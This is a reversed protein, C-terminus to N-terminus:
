SLRYKRRVQNVLRERSSRLREHPAFLASAEDLLNVVVALKNIQERDLEDHSCLMEIERIAVEKAAIDEPLGSRTCLGYTGDLFHQWESEVHVDLEENDMLAEIVIGKDKFGFVAHIYRSRFVDFVCDKEKLLIVTGLWAVYGKAYYDVTQTDAYLGFYSDSTLSLNLTYSPKPMLSNQQYGKLEQKTVKLISLLEEETLFYQNLYTILKM